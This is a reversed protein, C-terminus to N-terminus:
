NRKRVVNFIKKIVNYKELHRVFTSKKNEQTTKEYIIGSSGYNCTM